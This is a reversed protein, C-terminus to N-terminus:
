AVLILAQALASARSRRQWACEAANDLGPLRSLAKFSQWEDEWLGQAAKYSGLPDSHLMGATVRERVLSLPLDAITPNYDNAPTLAM